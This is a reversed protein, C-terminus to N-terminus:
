KTDKGFKNLYYIAQLIPMLDMSSLPWLNGDRRGIFTDKQKAVDIKDNELCAVFNEYAGPYQYGDRSNLNKFLRPRNIWGKITLKTLIQDVSSRVFWGLLMMFYPSNYSFFPNQSTKFKGLPKWSKVKFMENTLEDTYREAPSYNLVKRVIRMNLLPIEPLYGYKLVNLQKGMSKRGHTFIGFLEEYSEIYRPRYRDLHEFLEDMDAEIEVILQQESIPLFKTEQIIKKLLSIVRQKKSEKFLLKNEETIQTLEIKTRKFFNLIYYRTRFNRARISEIGKSRLTDCIDGFLFLEKEQKNSTSNILHTMWSSVHLSDSKCILDCILDKSPFTNPTNDFIEFQLNMRNAIEKPISSDISDITGHNSLKIRKNKAIFPALVVRSDIGGSMPITLQNYEDYFAEFEKNILDVLEAALEKRNASKDEQKITTDYISECRLKKDYYRLEGPFLTNVGRFITNRGYQIYVSPIMELFWSSFKINFQKIEFMVSLSTSIIILEDSVYYYLKYLGLPDNFIILENDNFYFGSFAGSYDDSLPWKRERLDDTLYSLSVACEKSEKKARGSLAICENENCRIQTGTNYKIFCSPSWIYSKDYNLNVTNFTKNNTSKVFVFDM